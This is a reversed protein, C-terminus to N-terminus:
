SKTIVFVRLSITSPLSTFLLNATLVGKRILIPDNTLFAEPAGTPALYVVLANSILLTM